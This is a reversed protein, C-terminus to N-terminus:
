RDIPRTRAPDIQCKLRLVVGMEPTPEELWAVWAANYNHMVNLIETMFEVDFPFSGHELCVAPHREQLTQDPEAGGTHPAISRPTPPATESRM